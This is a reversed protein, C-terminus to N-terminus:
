DVDNSKLLCQVVKEFGMYSSGVPRATAKEAKSKWELARRKMERGREGVVLERVLSEVKERNVDSEIEM